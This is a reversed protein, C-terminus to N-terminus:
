PTSRGPTLVGLAGPHIKFATTKDIDVLEGDITAKTSSRKREITLTM